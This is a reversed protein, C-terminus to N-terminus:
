NNNEHNQFFFNTQIMQGERTLFDNIRYAFPLHLNSHKIKFIKNSKLVESTVLVFRVSTLRDQPLSNQIPYRLSKIITFKPFIPFQKTGALPIGKLPNLATSAM